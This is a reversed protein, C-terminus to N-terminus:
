VINWSNVISLMKPTIGYDYSSLPNISKKLLSLNATDLNMAELLAGLLARVKPPYAGGYTVLKKIEATDFSYIVKKLYVLGDIKQLNPITNLDKIVDLLELYKITDATVKVYSKAPKIVVNGVKGKVQRDVSAVRVSSPVQTTLGLRNYLRTGTIYAVQKNKEFM